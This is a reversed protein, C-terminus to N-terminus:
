PSAPSPSAACPLPRSSSRLGPLPLGASSAPRTPKTGRRGPLSFGCPDQRFPGRGTASFARGEGRRLGGERWAPVAKAAVRGGRDRPPDRGDVYNWAPASLPLPTRPRIPPPPPPKGGPALPWASCCTSSAYSPQKLSGPALPFGSLSPYPTTPAPSQLLRGRRPPPSDSETRALYGGLLPHPHGPPWHTTPM